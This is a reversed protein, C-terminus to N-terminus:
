CNLDRLPFRRRQGDEMTCAAVTSDCLRDFESEFDEPDWTALPCQVDRSGNSRISRVTSSARDSYWDSGADNTLRGPLYVLEHSALDLNSSERLKMPLGAAPTAGVHTIRASVRHPAPRAVSRLKPRRGVPESLFKLAGVGFAHAPQHNTHM